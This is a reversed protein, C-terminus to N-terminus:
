KKAPPPAADTSSHQQYVVGLVTPIFVLMPLLFPKLALVSSVRTPMGDYKFTLALLGCILMAAGQLSMYTMVCGRFLIFTLLGFFILGMGSGAWAFHPDLDLTRWLSVGIAAGCLGGMIAVAWRMLPLTIVAFIFACTVALPVSGGTHDGISSGVIAGLVAANLLVLGKFINYGFMLYVVGMLVMLAALGPGMQQVWTLLEGQQPWHDPFQFLAASAAAAAKHGAHEAQATQVAQLM